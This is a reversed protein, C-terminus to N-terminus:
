AEFCALLIPTASIVLILILKKSFLGAIEKKRYWVTSKLFATFFKNWFEFLLVHKLKKLLSLAHEMYYYIICAVLLSSLIDLCNKLFTKFKKNHIVLNHM